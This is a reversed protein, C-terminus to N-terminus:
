NGVVTTVQTQQLMIESVWVSYGRVDDEIDTSRSAITRWPLERKNAHFWRLLKERILKIENINDIDNFCHLLSCHQNFLGESKIKETKQTSMAAKTSCLLGHIFKNQVSFTIFRMYIESFRILVVTLDIKFM